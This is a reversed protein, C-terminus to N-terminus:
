WDRRKISRSGTAQSAVFSVDGVVPEETRDVKTPSAAVVQPIPVPEPMEAIGLPPEVNVDFGSAWPSSAPFQPYQPSPTSGTITAPTLKAFRGGADDVTHSQRAFYTDNRLVELKEAQTTDNRFTM